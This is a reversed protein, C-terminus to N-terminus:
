HRQPEGSAMLYLETYCHEWGRCAICGACAVPLHWAVTSSLFAPWWYDLPLRAGVELVKNMRSMDLCIGGRLAAM